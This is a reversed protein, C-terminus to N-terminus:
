GTLPGTDEEFLSLQGAKVAPKTRLEAIRFFELGLANRSFGLLHYLKMNNERRRVVRWAGLRFNLREMSAVFETAVFRGFAGVGRRRELDAWASRWGHNGLFDGLVPNDPQELLARHRNADMYSPVLVLFDVFVRALSAITAFRLAALRFPDLLCFTLMTEGPRRRLADLVLDIAQNADDVIYTIASGPFRGEVRVRLAETNTPNLDCYVYRDFPHRVSLAILPSTDVTTGDEFRARGPGSFLDVYAITSWKGKMSATFLDAYYRILDYKEGGWEGVAALLLGDNDLFVSGEGQCTLCGTRGRGKSVCDPCAVQDVM